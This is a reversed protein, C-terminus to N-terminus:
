TRQRSRGRWATLGYLRTRCTDTLHRGATQPLAKSGNPATMSRPIMGSTQTLSRYIVHESIVEDGTDYTTAVDWAPADDEPITTGGEILNSDMITLPIIIRASM